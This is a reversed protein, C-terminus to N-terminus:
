CALNKFRAHYFEDSAEDPFEVFLILLCFTSIFATM